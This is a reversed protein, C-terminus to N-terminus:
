YKRKRSLGVVNCDMDPDVSFMPDLGWGSTGPPSETGETVATPRAVWDIEVLPRRV